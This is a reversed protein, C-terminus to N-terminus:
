VLIRPYMVHDMNDLLGDEIDVEIDSTARALSGQGNGKCGIFRGCSSCGGRLQLFGSIISVIRPLHYYSVRKPVSLTM